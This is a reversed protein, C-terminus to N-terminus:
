IPRAYILTYLETQYSGLMHSVLYGRDMLENAFKSWPSVEAFSVTIIVYEYGPYETQLVALAEEKTKDQSSIQAAFIDMRTIMPHDHRDVKPYVHDKAYKTTIPNGIRDAKLSIGEQAWGFQPLVSYENFDTTLHHMGQLEENYIRYISVDGGSYFLPNSNNDMVWGHQTTLVKIENLDTTYLHNMLQDNYLRYVPIGSTEDASYWAIGEYGWGDRDYLMDKEFKDTTYLHEGNNPNYLRYVPIGTEEAQTETAPFFILTLAVLLTLVMAAKIKKMFNNMSTKEM